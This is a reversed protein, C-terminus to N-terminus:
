PDDNLGYKENLNLLHHGFVSRATRDVVIALYVNRENTPILVHDFRDNESRYVLEVEEFRYRTTGFEREPIAKVYPWIDTVPSSDASVDRMRGVCTSRFSDDDLARTLM